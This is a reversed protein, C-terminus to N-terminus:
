NSEEHPSGKRRRELRAIEAESIEMFADGMFDKPWNQINGFIDIELPCISSGDKSANCFYLKIDSYIITEDAIRRQLRLLFHESHSEIFVQIGRHKAANIIADALEAQALPHLHIEPQELIVTSKEPVYQLLTIVPLVQSIGFGVDTLLVEPGGKHTTVKAQWRNSGPAIEEVRFSDIINMERLWHAVIEQFPKKPSRKKINRSENAATAAIIAAVADRGKPGVDTPRTRTWLYDRQPYERLPGLYFIADLQDEYSKELDALFSANQYSTRAQDPFAYSKVASKLKSPRGTTRQFHYDPHDTTLELESANQKRPQLAIRYGAFKYSLQTNEIESDSDPLEVISQVSIDEGKGFDPIKLETKRSFSIEWSLQNQIDHGYILDQFSGLDVYPGGINLTLARDTAEKTQKLLLLFQIISSKGSSNRGFIGTIPAFEIRAKKWSKFNEINLAKLM